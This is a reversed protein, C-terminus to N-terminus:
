GVASKLKDVADERRRNFKNVRRMRHRKLAEQKIQPGRWRAEKPEGKKVGCEEGAAASADDITDQFDVAANGAKEELLARKEGAACGGHGEAVNNETAILSGQIARARVLANVNALAFDPAWKKEWGVADGARHGQRASFV